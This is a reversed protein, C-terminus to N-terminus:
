PSKRVGFPDADPDYPPSMALYEPWTKQDTVEILRNGAAFEFAAVIAARVWDVAPGGAQQADIFASDAAFCASQIVQELHKDSM